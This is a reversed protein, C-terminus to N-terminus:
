FRFLPKFIDPERKARFIVGSLALLSDSLSLFPALRSVLRYGRGTETNRASLSVVLPVLPLLGSVANRVTWERALRCHGASGAASM